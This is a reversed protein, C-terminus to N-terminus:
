KNNLNNVTRWTSLFLEEQIEQIIISKNKHLYKVSENVIGQLMAKLIGVPLKVLQNSAIADALFDNIKDMKQEISEIIQDSLIGSYMLTEVFLMKHPEAMCFNFYAYWINRFTGYVSEAVNRYDSMVEIIETKTKFYAAEILSNKDPYYIYLTGTAIGAAKAVESMKMNQYGEILVMKTVAEIIAKEKNLDKDKPM